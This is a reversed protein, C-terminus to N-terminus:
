VDVGVLGCRILIGVEHVQQGREVELELGVGACFDWTM